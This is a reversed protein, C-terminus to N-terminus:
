GAVELLGEVVLRRTLVLRSDEDLWPELDAPRLRQSRAVHELADRLYAPVRLERDGLLVRLRDPGPVLRCVAHERRRLDSRDHLGHLAVRDRLGGPVHPPRVTLFREVERTAPAEADVRKLADAVAGLRDAVERTLSSLDHHYGVPLRDGGAVEDLVPLVARSLLQRWTVQNIGVTVHLSASAETRAAHPTGTPLYMSTGPEMRVATVNPVPRGRSPGIPVPRGRALVAPDPEPGPEPDPEPDPQPDPDPAHV